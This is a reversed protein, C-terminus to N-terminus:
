PRLDLVNRLRSAQMVVRLELQHDTAPRRYERELAAVDLVITALDHLLVEEPRIPTLTTVTKVYRRCGDCLDITHREFSETSILSGLKDHDREGCFPCRLWEIRWASGCAACRLYRAGELGRVEALGPRRGCIPCYGHPWDPPVRDAWATRCAQLMPMAILPALAQLVGHDYRQMRALQDLRDVDQSMATEFLLRPSVREEAIASALGQAVTGIDAAHALIRRIWREILRPPVKILAGDLMPQADRRPSTLAPVCRAWDPRATERLTEEILALLPRWEPHDVALTSLLSPSEAARTM